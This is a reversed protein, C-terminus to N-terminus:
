ASTRVARWVRAGAVLTPDQTDTLAMGWPAITAISEFTRGNNRLFEVEQNSLFRDPWIAVLRDPEHFALPRLLVGNLVSFVATNAGVGLALTLIAVAAFGPQRQLSRLTFRLDHTFGLLLPRRRREATMNDDPGGTNRSITFRTALSLTHRWFWLRARIPGVAAAKRKYDELLDGLVSERTVGTPLLRTLLRVALHPARVSDPGDTM